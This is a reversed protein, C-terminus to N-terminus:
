LERVDKVQGFVPEVTESRKKYTVRGQDTLLKQSMLQVPTLGADPEPGLIVFSGFGVVRVPSFGADPFM